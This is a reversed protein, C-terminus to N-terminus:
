SIPRNAPNGRLLGHLQAKQERRLFAVSAKSRSPRWHRLKAAVYGALDALSGVLYPRELFRFICRAIQFVPAYGLQFCAQGRRFRARLPGGASAGVYGYHTVPLTPFTSVEWGSMRADIEAASDEGGYQLPELGGTDRYCERRFFQVAGAVSSLSKIRGELRGWLDQIINGGGIGLKPNKRFEAILKEFYDAAFAVDADLVGFFDFGVDDLEAEARHLAAVKNVFSHGGTRPVSVFEIFECEEAHKMVIDDTGDTSGDSVIVWRVPLLSQSRVARITRRINGCENHAATVLVYTDSPSL